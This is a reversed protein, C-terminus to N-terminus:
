AHTAASHARHGHVHTFDETPGNTTTRRASSGPGTCNSSASAALAAVGAAYAAELAPAEPAPTAAEEPLRWLERLVSVCVDVSDADVGPLARQSAVYACVAARLEARGADSLSPTAM